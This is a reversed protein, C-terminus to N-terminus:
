ELDLFTKNMRDIVAHKHSDSLHAYRKVMALTKHGLIEAIESLSAGSMALYSAACHRLDHFRFDEIAAKKLAQEWASRIVAAKQFKSIKEHEHQLLSFSSDRQINQKSRPLRPFVLAANSQRLRHLDLFVNLAQPSLPVARRDGNKTEHLTILKRSLDIQNWVLNIIEGFRM